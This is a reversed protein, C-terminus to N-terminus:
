PACMSTEGTKLRERMTYLAKEWNPLYERGKTSKRRFDDLLKTLWDLFWQEFEALEPAKNMILAIQAYAEEFSCRYLEASRHTRVRLEQKRTERFYRRAKIYDSRLHILRRKLFYEAMEYNRLKWGAVVEFPKCLQFDETHERARQDLPRTTIGIKLYEPIMQSQMVYVSGVSDFNKLDSLEPQSFSHSASDKAFHPGTLGSWRPMFPQGSYDRDTFLPNVRGETPELPLEVDRRAWDTKGTGDAASEIVKYEYLRDCAACQLVGEVWRGDHWIDTIRGKGCFCLRVEERREVYM